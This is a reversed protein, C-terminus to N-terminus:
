FFFRETRVFFYMVDCWIIIPYSVLDMIYRDTAVLVSVHILSFFSLSSPIYGFFVIISLEEITYNLTPSEQTNYLRTSQYFGTHITSYHITFHTPPHHPNRLPLEHPHSVCTPNFSFWITQSSFPFFILTVCSSFKSSVEWTIEVTFFFVFELVSLGCRIWSERLSLFFNDM